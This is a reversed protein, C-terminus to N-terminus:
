AQEGMELEGLLRVLLPLNAQGQVKCQERTVSDGWKQSASERRIEDMMLKAIQGEWFCKLLNSENNSAFQVADLPFSSGRPKAM